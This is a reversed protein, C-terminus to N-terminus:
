CSVSYCTTIFFQTATNQDLVSWLRASGNFAGYFVDGPGGITTTNLYIETSNCLTSGNFSFPLLNNSLCVEEPSNITSYQWRLIPTSSGQTTTTTTSGSANCCLNSSIESWRGNKPKKKRFVLSGAVVRGSGDYRVFAKLDKFKVSGM